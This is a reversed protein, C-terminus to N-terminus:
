SVQEGETGGRERRACGEGEGGGGEGAGGGEDEARGGGEAEGGGGGGGGAGGEREVGEGAVRGGIETGSPVYFWVPCRMPGCSGCARPSYRIQRLSAYSIGRCRMPGDFGCVRRGYRVQGNLLMGKTLPLLHRTGGGIDIGSVADLPTTVQESEEECRKMVSQLEEKVGCGAGVSGVLTVTRLQGSGARGREAAAGRDAGSGGEQEGGARGGAGGGEEEGEGEHRVAGETSRGAGTSARGRERGAGARGM